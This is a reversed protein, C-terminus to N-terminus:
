SRKFFIYDLSNLKQIRNRFHFPVLNFSSIQDNAPLSNGYKEGVVIAFSRDPGINGGAAFDMNPGDPMSLFVPAHAAPFGINAKYSGNIAPDFM